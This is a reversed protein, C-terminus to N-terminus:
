RIPKARWRTMPSARETRAGGFTSKRARVTGSAVRQMRGDLRERSSPSRFPQGRRDSYTSWDAESSAGGVCRSGSRRRLTRPGQQCSQEGALRSRRDPWLSHLAAFYTDRCTRVPVSWDFTLLAKNNSGWLTKLWVQISSWGSRSYVGLHCELWNRMFGMLWWMEGLGCVLGMICRNKDAHTVVSESRIAAM